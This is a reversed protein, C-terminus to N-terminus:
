VPKIEAPLKQTLTLATNPQGLVLTSPQYFVPKPESWSFKVM